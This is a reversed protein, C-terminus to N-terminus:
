LCEPFYAHNTHAQRDYVLGPVLVHVVPIQIDKQTHEYVIVQEHGAQNLRKLLSEICLTFDEPVQTEIFPHLIKSSTIKRDLQNPSTIQHWSNQLAQYVSPYCDDRTGAVFTLRAQIAETIARSLAVVSSLHCGAGSFSGLAHIGTSDSVVATYVPVGMKHTVETMELQVDSAKLQELITKLHPATITSADIHRKHKPHWESLAWNDREIVEYLGHCVAEEYTNGSALGNSSCGYFFNYNDFKRHLIETNLDILCKPFYIDQGSNLEIGKLWAFNVDEFVHGHLQFGDSLQLKELNFLNKKGKLDRYTGVVDAKPIREAHWGEISEMVASIKALDHTVGKGQSTTVLKSLPRIAVYTPININDLGTINAVRSIGFTPWILPELKAWTQKPDVARYTGGLDYMILEAKLSGLFLNIFVNYKNLM